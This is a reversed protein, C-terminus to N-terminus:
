SAPELPRFTTTKPTTAPAPLTTPAPGPLPQDSTGTPPHLGAASSQLAAGSHGGPGAEVVAAADARLLAPSKMCPKASSEGCVPRDITGITPLPAVATGSDADRRGSPRARGAGRTREGRALSSGGGVESSGPATRTRGVLPTVPTEHTLPEGRGAHARRLHACFRKLAPKWRTVWRAQGSAWPVLGELGTSPWCSARRRAQLPESPRSSSTVGASRIASTGAPAGDEVPGPDVRQGSRWTPRM